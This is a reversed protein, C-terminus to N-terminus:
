PEIPEGEATPPAVHDIFEDVSPHDVRVRVEIDGLEDPEGVAFNVVGQFAAQKKLRFGFGDARRRDFFQSRASDLIAQQHLLKSFRDLSRTTAVIRDGGREIAAGPFVNEVADIVRDPVETDNVPTSIRVDIRYIM